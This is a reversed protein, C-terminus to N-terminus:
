WTGVLLLQILRCFTNWGTMEEWQMTYLKSRSPYWLLIGHYCIHKDSTLRNLCLCIKSYSSIEMMSISCCNVVFLTLSPLVQESSIVQVPGINVSVYKGGSSLKQKVRGQWLVSANMMQRPIWSMWKIFLDLFVYCDCTWFQQQNLIPLPLTLVLRIATLHQMMKGIEFAPNPLKCIKNYQKFILRHNWCHHGLWSSLYEM